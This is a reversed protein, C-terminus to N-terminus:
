KIVWIIDPSFYPGYLKKIPFRIGNGCVEDRKARIDEEVGQEGKL